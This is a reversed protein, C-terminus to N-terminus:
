EVDAYTGRKWKIMLITQGHTDFERAVAAASQGSNLKARIDRIQDNTFRRRVRGSLRRRKKKLANVEETTPKRNAWRM